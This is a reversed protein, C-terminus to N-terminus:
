PQASAQAARHEKYASRAAQIQHVHQEAHEAYGKVLDFATVRGLAPHRGERSFAAEPLDKVLEYNEARARRFTEIAQSLKRKGYDLRDAWRDQAYGMLLPNDEAIIQRLSVALVLETDALHCVITRVGWKNGGPKFDLM